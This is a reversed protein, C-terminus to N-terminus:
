ITQLSLMQQNNLNNDSPLPCLLLRVKNIFLGILTLYGLFICLASILLESLFFQKEPYYSSLFVGWIVCSIYMTVGIHRAENNNKPFHRIRFANFTCLGMTCVSLLLNVLFPVLHTVGNCQFIIFDKNPSMVFNPNPLTLVFRLISIMIQLFVIGFVIFAQFIPHSAPKSVSTKGCVFSKYIQHTRTLLPVYCMLFGMGPLLERFVCSIISPRIMYVIPCCFLIKIGVLILCNLDWESCSVIRNSKFYIFLGTVGLVLCLGVFILVIYIYLFKGCAGAMSAEIEPITKCENSEVKEKKGCPICSDNHSISNYQCKQCKWCCMSKQLSTEKIRIEGLPCPDSCLIIPVLSLIDDTVFTFKPRTSYLVEEPSISLNPRYLEWSGRLVNRYKGETFLFQHIDYKITRNIRIFPTKFDDLTGDSYSLWNLLQRVAESYEDRDSANLFCEKFDKMHVKRINCLHDIFLELSDAISYVAYIVTHVPTQSYYGVEESFREEGTCLNKSANNASLSCNFINEWVSKLEPDPDDYPNLNLYYNEFGQVRDYAIDLSLTGNLAAEKGQTIEVYNTCGYICIIALNNKLNHEQILSFIASTDQKNTFLILGISRRKEKNKYNGGFLNQLVSEYVSKTLHYPLGIEAELCVNISSLQNIFQAADYEGDYRYSSIVVVYNWKLKQLLDLAVQVRFKDSPVTRLITEVKRNDFFSCSSSYSIAVTNFVSTLTSAIFSSQASYPGILFPIRDMFTKLIKEQLDMMNKVDFVEHIALKYGHLFSANNARNVVNVAFKMAQYMMFGSQINLGGDSGIPFIGNLLFTGNGRMVKAFVRSESLLILFISAMLCVGLGIKKPM